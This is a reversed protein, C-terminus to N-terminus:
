SPPEVTQLTIIDAIGPDYRSLRFCSIPCAYRSIAEGDEATCSSLLESLASLAQTKVGAEAAQVASLCENM